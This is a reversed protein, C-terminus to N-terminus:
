RLENVNYLLYVDTYTQTNTHTISLSLPYVNPLLVSSVHPVKDVHPSRRSGLWKGAFVSCNRKPPFATHKRKYKENPVTLVHVHFGGM